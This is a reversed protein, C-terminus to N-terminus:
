NGVAIGVNEPESFVIPCTVISRSTPTLLVDFIAAMIAPLLNHFLTYYRPKWVLHCRFDLRGGHMNKLNLFVISIAHISAAM